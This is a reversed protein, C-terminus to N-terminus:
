IAASEPNMRREMERELMRVARLLEDRLEPSAQVPNRRLLDAAYRYQEATQWLVSSQLAELYQPTFYSFDLSTM